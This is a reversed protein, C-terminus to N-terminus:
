WSEHSLTPNGNLLVHMTLSPYTHRYLLGTPPTHLRPMPWLYSPVSSPPYTTFSINSSLLLVLHSSPQNYLTIPYSLPTIIPLTHNLNSFFTDQFTKPMPLSHPFLSSLSLAHGFHLPRGFQLQSLRSHKSCSSAPPHLPHKPYFSSSHHPKSHTHHATM